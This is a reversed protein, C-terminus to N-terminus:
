RGDRLKRSLEQSDRLATKAISEVRDPRYFKEEEKVLNGKDDHALKFGEDDFAGNGDDFSTVIGSEIDVLIIWTANSDATGSKLLNGKEIKFIKRKSADDVGLSYLTDHLTIGLKGNEKELLQNDPNTSTFLVSGDAELNAWYVFPFEKYKEDNKYFEVLEPKRLDILKSRLKGRFEGSTRIVEEISKLDEPNIKESYDPNADAFTALETSSIPDAKECGSLALSSVFLVSASAKHM